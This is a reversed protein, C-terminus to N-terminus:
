EATDSTIGKGFDDMHNNIAINIMVLSTM